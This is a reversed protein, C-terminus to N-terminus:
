VFILVFIFEFIFFDYLEDKTKKINSIQFNRFISQEVNPRELNQGRGAMKLTRVYFDRNKKM